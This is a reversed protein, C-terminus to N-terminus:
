QTIETLLKAAARSKRAPSIIPCWQEPECITVRGGFLEICADVRLNSSVRKSTALIQYWLKSKVVSCFM